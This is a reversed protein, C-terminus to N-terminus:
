LKFTIPIAFPIKVGEGNKLAPSLQPILKIIRIAEQELITSSGKTRINTVSGTKNITFMIHVKGQINLDQAEKPYKFNKTIHQQIKQQFCRRNEEDSKKDCGDFLPVEFIDGGKYLLVSDLAIEQLQNTTKNKAFHYYFNHRPSYKKPKKNRIEFRPLEKLESSLTKTIEKRMTSDNVSSWARDKIVDGKNDVVLSLRVQLTDPLAYHNIIAKDLIPKATNYLIRNLCTNADDVAKCDPHVLQEQPFYISLESDQANLVGLSITFIFILILNKM